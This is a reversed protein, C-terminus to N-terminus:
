ATGHRSTEVAKFFLVTLHLGNEFGRAQPPCKRNLRSCHHPPEPVDSLINYRTLPSHRLSPLSPQQPEPDGPNWGVTQGTPVDTELLDSQPQLVAELTVRQM